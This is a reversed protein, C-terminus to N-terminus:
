GLVRMYHCGADQAASVAFIGNPMVYAGPILHRRIEALAADATLSPRKQRLQNASGRLANNCALVIAGRQMRTDVGSDASIM